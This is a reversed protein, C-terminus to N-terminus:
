MLQEALLDARKKIGAFDALASNGATLRLRRVFISL